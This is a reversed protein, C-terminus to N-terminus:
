SPRAVPAGRDKRALRVPNIELSVLSSGTPHLACQALVRFLNPSIGGIVRDNGAAHKPQQGFAMRVAGSVRRNLETTSTAATVPSSGRFTM